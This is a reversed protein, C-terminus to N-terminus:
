EEIARMDKSPDIKAIKFGTLIFILGFIPTIWNLFAYPAYAFAEVGLTGAAFAGGVNWPLLCGGITGIDELIRSCNEPKLNYKKYVPAFLTGVMAFAFHNTSVLLICLIVVGATILMLSKGSKVRKSIAEIVPELLHMGSIIGGLGLAGIFIAVMSFMSSMGGRNLLSKLIANDSDVVFGSYAFGGVAKISFGQYVIAIVAAVVAGILLTLITDKKRILMYIVVIVPILPVFGLKFIGSLNTIIENVATPDYSSSGHRIGLITYLVASIVYAPACTYLMYKIHTMLPVGSLTSSMLTSDSVPSMKDGFYAGSIVAGAVLAPNFGLGMGVGMMAIGATGVTGWSSGLILSVASCLLMTVLLFISPSIVKLGFVLVTSITGAALWTGIMIGVALIIASAPLANKGMEYAKELMESFSYGLKAGFPALLLWGFFLLLGVNMKLVGVGIGILIALTGIALLSFAATPSKKEKVVSRVDSNM